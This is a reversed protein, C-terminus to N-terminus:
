HPELVQILVQHQKLVQALAQLLTLAQAPALAQDQELVWDPQPAQALLQTLVQKRLQVRVQAWVPILSQARVWHALLLGLVLVVASSEPSM